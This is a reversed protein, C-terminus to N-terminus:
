RSPICSRSNAMKWPRTSLQTPNETDIICCELTSVRPKALSQSAKRQPMGTDGILHTGSHAPHTCTKSYVAWHTETPSDPLPPKVAAHPDRRTPENVKLQEYQDIRLRTTPITTDASIPPHIGTNYIRMSRDRRGFVASSEDPYNTWIALYATSSRARSQVARTCTKM